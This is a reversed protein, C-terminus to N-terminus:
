VNKTAIIGEFCYSKFIIACEDFGVEQLLNHNQQSTLPDMVSSLSFTKALIESPEFKELKFKMYANNIIDQLRPSPARVKELWIFAGGPKIQNYIKELVMRRSSQEIFQLTFISTILNAKEMNCEMIDCCQYTLNAGERILMEAQKKSKEIMEKVTDVGVITPNRHMYSYALSRTLTGTSCGIDYVLAGNAIFHDAMATVIKHADRYNPISNEIHEDFHLVTENAFSWSGDTQKLNSGVEIKKGKLAKRIEKESNDM